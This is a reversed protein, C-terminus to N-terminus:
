VIMNAIECYKDCNRFFSLKTITTQNSSGIKKVARAIEYFRKEWLAL